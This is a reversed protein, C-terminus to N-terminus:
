VTYASAAAEHLRRLLTRLAPETQSKPLVRMIQLRAVIRMRRHSSLKSLLDEVVHRPCGCLAECLEKDKMKSLAGEIKKRPLTPIDEVRLQFRVILDRLDPRTRELAQLLAPQVRTRQLTEAWFAEGDEVSQTSPTPPTQRRLSDAVRIFEDSPVRGLQSRSAEIQIREKPALRQLLRLRQSHPLFQLLIAARVPLERRIWELLDDDGRHILFDFALGMDLAPRSPKKPLPPRTIPPPCKRLALLERRRKLVHVSGITLLVSLLVCGVTAVAGLTLDPNSFVLTLFSPVAQIM